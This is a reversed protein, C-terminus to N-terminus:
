LAQGLDGLYYNQTQVPFRNYHNGQPLPIFVSGLVLFIIRSSSVWDEWAM